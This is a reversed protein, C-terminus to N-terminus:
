SRPGVGEGMAEVIMGFSKAQTMGLFKGEFWGEIEDFPCQIADFKGTM